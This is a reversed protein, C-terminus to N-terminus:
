YKAIVLIIKRTYIFHSSGRALPHHYAMRYWLLTYFPTKSPHRTNGGFDSRRHLELRTGLVYAEEEMGKEEIGVEVMLVGEQVMRGEGMWVEGEEVMVMGEQVMGEGVMGEEVMGEERMVM